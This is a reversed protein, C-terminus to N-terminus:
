LRVLRGVGRMCTEEEVRVLEVRSREKPERACFMFDLCRGVRVLATTPSRSTLKM